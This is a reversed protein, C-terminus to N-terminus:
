QFYIGDDNQFGNYIDFLLQKGECKQSTSTQISQSEDIPTAFACTLILFFAFIVFKM